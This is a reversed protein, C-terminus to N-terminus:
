LASDTVMVTFSFTDQGTPTGSIVGAPSLTLGTPLAGSSLSWTYPPTGGSASLTANYPTGVIISPLSTTTITLPSVTATGVNIGLSKSTSQAPSASDTLRITFNYSGASSPTGSIQGTGASLTLGPPLAGSSISWTYAPTGGSAVLTTSYSVGMTGSPFSSTAISLPTPSPATTNGVVISLSQSVSQTPSGSDTVRATFAYTSTSGPAGAIQCTSAMLVLGRPLAGSVLSCKYPPTGGAAILTASYATGYTADPLSATTIVLPTTSPALVTVTVPHSTAGNPNRVTVTATGPNATDPAPVSVQLNGSPDLRTALKIGNWLIASNQMFNRGVASLLTDTSGAAIYAPNVAEIVPTKTQNKPLSSCPVTLALVGVVAVLPRTSM